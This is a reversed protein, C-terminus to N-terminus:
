TTVEYEYMANYIKNPFTPYKNRYEDAIEKIYKEKNLKYALFAEDQTNFLNSKFVEKNNNSMYFYKKTEKDLYVGKPLGRNNQSNIFLSNIRQDVLLVTEKSYIKNKLNLNECMIDKDLVLLLDDTWKNEIYFNYFNDFDLFEDSVICTKYAKARGCRYIMSRWVDKIRKREKNRINNNQYNINKVSGSKFNKYNASKYVTGDEFEIDVSKSNRYKIIKMSCGQYNINTEGLREVYSKNIINDKSINKIKGKNFNSYTKGSVINGDEFMVDIDKSNTYKIIEMKFGDLNIAEEGLREKVFDSM